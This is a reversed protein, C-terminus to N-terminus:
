AADSPAEAPVEPEPQADPKAKPTKAKPEKRKRLKLGEAKGMEWADNIKNEACGLKYVRLVAKMLADVALGKPDEPERNLYGQLLERQEAKTEASAIRYAVGPPIKGERLASHLSKDARALKVFNKLTSESVGGLSNRVDEVLMNRNVMALARFAKSLLTDESRHTNLSEALLIDRESDKNVLVPLRFPKLGQELRRNNAERLYRVRMRGDVVVWGIDEQQITVPQVCGNMLFNQLTEELLPQQNREGDFLPHEAISKHDTDIGIISVDEANCHFATTLRSMGEALQKSM